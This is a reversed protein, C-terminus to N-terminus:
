LRDLVSLFPNLAVADPPILHELKQGRLRALMARPFMEQGPSREVVKEWVSIASQKKGDLMLAYGLASDHLSNLPPAAFLRAARAVWESEPASPMTVFRAVFDGPSLGAVGGALSDATAAARDGALLDWVALQAAIATRVGPASNGQAAKMAGHLAAVAEKRRGTRYLWDGELLPFVADNAKQRAERFKGFAAEAGSKDGALFKAWAEKYLDGGSLFGSSKTYAAAYSTAAESYKGFWYNIDGESDLPNAETPRIRAYERVAALADTYNGSWAAAYALQNWADADAPLVRTIKKWVAAAEKYNGAATEAGALSRGSDVDAPNLQYLKRLAELARPRDAQLSAEELDIRASDIPKLQQARAKEFTASAQSQNGLAAYTRALSSWARGYHPDLSVSQELKGIAATAPEELASCYLRFAEANATPADGNNGGFGESLQGLAALPLPATASVAIVTRHTALDEESATIRIGGATREVYGTVLRNAGSALAAARETSEGPAAPSGSGLARSTREIADESVLTGAAGDGGRLAGATLTQALYESAGRGVWDLSADGSINEFRVVALRPPPGTEKHGCASILVTPFVLLCDRIGARFRVRGARFRVRFSM